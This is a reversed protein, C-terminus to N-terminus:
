PRIVNVHVRLPVGSREWQSLHIYQSCLSLQLSFSASQTSALRLWTVVTRRSEYGACINGIEAYQLTELRLESMSHHM